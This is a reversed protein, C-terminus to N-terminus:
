ACEREVLRNCGQEIIVFEDLMSMGARGLVRQRNYRREVFENENIFLRLVNASEIFEYFPPRTSAYNLAVGVSNNCTQARRFQPTRPTTASHNKKIWEAQIDM